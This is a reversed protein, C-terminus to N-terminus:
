LYRGSDKVVDINPISIMGEVAEKTVNPHTIATEHATVNMETKLRLRLLSQAWRTQFPTFNFSDLEPEVLDFWSIGEFSSATMLFLLQVYTPGSSRNQRTVNGILSIMARLKGLTSESVM